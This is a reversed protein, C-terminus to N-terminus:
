AVPAPGHCLWDPLNKRLAGRDNAPHSAEDLWNGGQVHLGLLNSHVRERVAIYHGMLVVGM